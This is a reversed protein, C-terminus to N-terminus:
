SNGALLATQWKEICPALDDPHVAQAWGEGLSQEATLGSYDLWRRNTFDIAGGLDATWVIEPIGEMTQVYLERQLRANTEALQLTQAKIQGELNQQNQKQSEIDTCTGFWKIIEGAANRIPNARGLFWRFNGDKGRLRYEIEYPEGVRLANQWRSTCSNLDDPHVVAKWGM